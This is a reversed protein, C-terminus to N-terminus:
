EAHCTSTFRSPTKASLPWLADRLARKGPVASEAQHRGGGPLIVVVDGDTAQPQLRTLAMITTRPGDHRPIDCCCAPASKYCKSLRCILLSDIGTIQLRVGQQM